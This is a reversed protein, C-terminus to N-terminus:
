TGSSMSSEFEDQLSRVRYKLTRIMEIVVEKYGRARELERYEDTDMVEIKARAVSMKPQDLISLLKRIYADDRRRIEENVNGILASLEVMIQTTEHLTLEQINLLIERRRDIMSRVTNTQAIDRVPNANM